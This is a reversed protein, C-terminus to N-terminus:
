VHLSYLITLPFYMWAGESLHSFIGYIIYYARERVLSYYVDDGSKVNLPSFEMSFPVVESWSKGLFSFHDKIAFILVDVANHIENQWLM